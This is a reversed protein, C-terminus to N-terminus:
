IESKLHKLKQALMKHGRNLRSAITGTSCDLIRAIEEYSLDESYRLLIVLRYKPKLEGIAKQVAGCIEGREFKEDPTKKTRFEFFNELSFFRRARRQEDICANITMRYIWTTLESQGRFDAIKNYIKLFVAQTVDEASARDGGFFHLAVSFVRRQHARYLREFARRSGNRCEAVLDQESMQETM